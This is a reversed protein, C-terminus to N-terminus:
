GTVIEASGYQHVTSFWIYIINPIFELILILENEIVIDYICSSVLNSIHNLLKVGRNQSLWAIDSSLM